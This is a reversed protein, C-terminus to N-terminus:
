ERSVDELRARHRTLREARRNWFYALTFRNTAFVAICVTLLFVALRHRGAAHRAAGDVLLLLLGIPLGHLVALLAVRRTSFREDPDPRLFGFPWWQNESETLRNFVDEADTLVASLRLRLPGTARPFWSFM